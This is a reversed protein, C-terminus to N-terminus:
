SVEAPRNERSNIFHEFSGKLVHIFKEDNVFSALLIKQLREYYNLLDQVMHSDKQADMVIELGRRKVYSSWAQLLYENANVEKLGFLNYMRKLDEIRTEDMLIDFGKSLISNVHKVLYQQEVVNILPKKTSLELYNVVREGELLLKLEVHKLYAAINNEEIKKSSEMSCFLVTADLFPPVFMQDYIGLNSLMRLMKKILSHSISEGNRELDILYLVGSLIKKILDGNACLHLRFIDIGMNWIGLLQPSQLVYTRDLYLFISRITQMQTCFEAWVEDVYTLFLIHDSPRGLLKQISSQIHSDCLDKLLSYLNPALKHICMDEVARYLEERSHMAAKNNHVSYVAERLKTSTTLEFDTPLKPQVPLAHM